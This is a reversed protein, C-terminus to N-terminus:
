SAERHLPEPNPTLHDYWRELARALPGDTYSALTRAHDRDGTTWARYSALVGAFGVWTGDLGTASPQTLTGALVREAQEWAVGVAPMVPSPDPDAPLNEATALHQTYLHLSDIHHHYEGLEVGLWGALLEQILTNTFVDYPFGLWLDQSRMTTHMHLRGRRLYFRYSLTCPVDKHGRTDRGPDYLQIVAQRTDPDRQLLRRAGDLQDIGNWRRMRPGYAGRLVGEDAYRTLARNYQFIWADDSGSLIWLAEAIAFAPNLQRLPPLDVFRRRPQTLRLHAGLIESTGMGRPSVQDGFSTVARAAATFLGNANDSTLVIM